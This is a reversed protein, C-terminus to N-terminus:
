QQAPLGAQNELIWTRAFSGDQIATLTERMREKVSEDVVYDGSYYDGFEASESM